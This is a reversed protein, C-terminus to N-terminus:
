SSLRWNRPRGGDLRVGAYPEYHVMGSEALAKVMSTATGPVVGLAAALEGWRSWATTGEGPAAQSKISPRSTIRSPVPRYCGPRTRGSRQTQHRSKLRVAALRIGINQTM